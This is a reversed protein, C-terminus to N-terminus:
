YKLKIIVVCTRSFKTSTDYSHVVHTKSLRAPRTPEVRGQVQEQHSLISELDEPGLELVRVLGHGGCVFGPEVRVDVRRTRGSELAQRGDIGYVKPLKEVLEHTRDPSWSPEPPLVLPVGIEHRAHFPVVGRELVSRQRCTGVRPVLKRFQKPVQPELLTLVPHTIPTSRCFRGVLEEQETLHLWVVQGKVYPRISERSSQEHQVVPSPRTTVDPRTYALSVFPVYEVRRFWVRKMRTIPPFLCLDRGKEGVRVKYSSPARVVM